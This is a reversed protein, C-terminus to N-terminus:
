PLARPMESLERPRYPLRPLISGGGHLVSRDHFYGMPLATRGKRPKVSRPSIEQSKRRSHRAQQSVPLVPSRGDELCVELSVPPTRFSIGSAASRCNIPTVTLSVTGSITLRMAKKRPSTTTTKH